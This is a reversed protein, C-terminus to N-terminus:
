RRFTEVTLGDALERTEVIEFGDLFGAPMFTDADDVEIPVRTVIWNDIV